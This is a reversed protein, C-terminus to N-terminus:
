DPKITSLRPGNKRSKRQNRARTCIVSISERKKATKAELFVLALSKPKTDRSRFVESWNNWDEDEAAMGLETKGFTNKLEKGSVRAKRIVMARVQALTQWFTEFANLMAM